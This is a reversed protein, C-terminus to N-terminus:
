WMKFIGIFKTKVNEQVNMEFQKVIEKKVSKLQPENILISNKNLDILKLSKQFKRPMPMGLRGVVVYEDSFEISEISEWPMFEKNRLSDVLIGKSSFTVSQSTLRSTFLSVFPIGFCFFFVGMFFMEDDEYIPLIFFIKELLISVVLWASPVALLLVIVDYLIAVRKPNVMIGRKRFYLKKILFLGFLLFMAGIIKLIISLKTIEGDINEIDSDFEPGFVKGNYRFRQSDYLPDLYNDVFKDWEKIPIKSLNEIPTAVELEAIVKLVTSYRSLDKETLEQLDLNYEGLYNFVVVGSERNKICSSLVGRFVILNTDQKEILVLKEFKTWEDIECTDTLWDEDLYNFVRWICPYDEENLKPGTVDIMEIGPFESKLVESLLHNEIQLHVIEKEISGSRINNFPLFVLAIGLSIMALAFIRRLWIKM